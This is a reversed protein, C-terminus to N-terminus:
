KKGSKQKRLKEIVERIQRSNPSGPNEILFRELHKIAKEPEGRLDYLNALYIHAIAPRDIEYARLLNAEASQYDATMMEALGLFLYAASIRKDLEISRRLPALADSYKKQKVLAIGKGAHADARDPKMEIAKQYAAMAEDYRQLNALQDGLAVHASYYEPYLEIAEQFHKIAKEPNNERAQKLGKQHEKRAREPVGADLEEVSVVGPSPLRKGPKLKLQINQTFVQPASGFAAVEAQVTTTEFLEGDGEATLQYIGRGLGGFTFRGSLDTFTEYIRRGNFTLTVKVSNPPPANNPLAVKGQLTHQGQASSVAACISILSCILAFRTLCTKIM